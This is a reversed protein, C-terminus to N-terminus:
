QLVVRHLSTRDIFWLVGNPAREVAVIGATHQLLVSDGTVGTRASNLTVRRLQSTLFTGYILNGEVGSGLGCTRCVAVGTPAISTGFTRRPLVPSPGDRNTSTPTPPTTCAATPGWGYNLGKGILNLEDNCEPGNDSAWFRNSGPDFAFGFVNRLGYAWVRNGFPNDSVVGATPTMRLIKGRASAVKQAEAPLGGDGDSLWLNHDPGFTLKGGYHDAPLGGFDRLVTPQGVGKGGSATIRYLQLRTQNSADLRLGYGYVYPTSPYAWHVTLGVIQQNRPVRYFESSAGTTPDVVRISGSGQEAVFVLGNPAVALATANTLGTLVPTSTVTAASAPDAVATIGALGALLLSLVAILVPIARARM